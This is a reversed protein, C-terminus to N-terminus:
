RLGGGLDLQTGALWENDPSTVLARVVRGIEEPQLWRPLARVSAWYEEAQRRDLDRYDMIGQITDETMPTGETNSPHVIFVRYGKPALEWAVCRAFHALGAKAACYPSSGNLVSKHAMSGVFVIYKLHTEKLTQRVFASTALISATLTTQIVDGIELGDQNEIWDLNTKGNALVLTDFHVWRTRRCIDEQSIDLTREDHEAVCGFKEDSMLANAIHSGINGSRDSGIVIASRDVRPEYRHTIRHWMDVYAGGIADKM